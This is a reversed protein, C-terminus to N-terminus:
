GGGSDELAVERKQKNTGDITGRGSSATAATQAPMKKLFPACGSRKTM